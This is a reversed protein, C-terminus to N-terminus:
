EDRRDLHLLVPRPDHDADEAVLGAGRGHLLDEETLGRSQTDAAVGDAPVLQLPLGGLDLGREAGDAALEAPELVPRRGEAGFVVIAGPDGGRAPDGKALYVGRGVRGVLRPMGRGPLGGGSRLGVIMAM